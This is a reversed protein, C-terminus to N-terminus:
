AAAEARPPKQRRAGIVEAIVAIAIEAPSVAGIDVGIPAHIRGLAAEPINQERLRQLRAAHTKRSGLAGIYFCDSALAVKLAEDDINPVHSLVVIATYRDPACAGLASRPWGTLIPCRPFRKKTAFATRPDIVIVDYAAAQAIPVLAQAIHVAGVVILRLAPTRVQLFLSAGDHEVLVSRGRRMHERYLQHAPDDPHFEGEHFLDQVGTKIDTVLISARRGQQDDVLQALINARM